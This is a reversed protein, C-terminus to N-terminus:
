CLSQVFDCRTFNHVPKESNQRPRRNPSRSLPAWGFFRSSRLRLTVVTASVCASPIIEFRGHYKDVTELFALSAAAASPKTGPACSTQKEVLTQDLFTKVEEHVTEQNGKLALVYDADAEVIEKAIKKQCGMADTTVISGSLELVRLREPVATIENSKDAVKLQGLVLGNGEAWASVVYRVSQDGDLTLPRDFGALSPRIFVLWKSPRM